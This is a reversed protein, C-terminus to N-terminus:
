WICSDLFYNTITWVDDSFCFDVNLIECEVGDEDVILIDYYDCDIFDITVEEGPLLLDSGLLDPGWSSSGTPTLYIEMIAYDSGNYITLSADDNVVCAGVGLAVLLGLVLPAIRLNRATKM